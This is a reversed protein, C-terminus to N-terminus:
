YFGTLKCFDLQRLKRFNAFSTFLPIFGKIPIIILFVMQYTVTTALLFIVIVIVSLVINTKLSRVASNVEMTQREKAASFELYEENTMEMSDVKNSICLKGRKRLIGMYFICSIGLLVSLSGFISIYGIIKANIPMENVATNSFGFALFPGVITASCAAFVSVVGLCVLISITRTEPFKEHLWNEHIIYTYRLISLICWTSFYFVLYITNNSNALKFYEIETVFPFVLANLCSSALAVVLNGFLLAYVPHSIEIELYIRRIVISLLIGNSIEMGIAIINSESFSLQNSVEEFSHKEM